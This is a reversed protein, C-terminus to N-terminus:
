RQRINKVDSNCEHVIRKVRAHYNCDNMWTFIKKITQHETFTEEFRKRASEGLMSQLNPNKILQTIANELADVDASPIILGNKEHIISEKNGGVDTSVIAKGARMAELLAISHYEALSPLAFVDFINLWADVNSQYGVFYVYREIGLCVCQYKLKKDCSGTGVVVLRAHAFRHVIKAFANIMYNVGKVPDLRSAIGIVFDSELLGIDSRSLSNIKLLDPLGNHVVTIKDEPVRHGVLYDKCYQAVALVGVAYHRYIYEMGMNFIPSLFVRSVYPPHYSGHYSCVFEFSYRSKRQLVRAIIPGNFGHVFVLDPVFNEILDVCRNIWSLDSRGNIPLLIAGIDRLADLDCTWDTCHICATQIEFEPLENLRDYTLACKGVGGLSFGWLLSLVRM